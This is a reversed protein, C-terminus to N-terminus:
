NTIPGQRRQSGRTRKKHRGPDQYLQCYIFGRSNIWPGCYSIKYNEIIRNTSGATAPYYLNLDV